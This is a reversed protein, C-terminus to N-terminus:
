KLRIINIAVSITAKFIHGQNMDKVTMYHQVLLVESSNPGGEYVEMWELGTFKVQWQGTQTNLFYCTRTYKAKM